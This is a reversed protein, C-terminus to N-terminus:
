SVVLKMENFFERKCTCKTKREHGAANRSMQKM